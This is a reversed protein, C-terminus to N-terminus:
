WVRVWVNECVCMCVTSLIHQHCGGAEVANGGELKLSHLTQLSWYHGLECVCLCSCLWVWVWASRGKARCLKRHIGFIVSGIAKRKGEPQAHLSSSAAQILISILGRWRGAGVVSWHTAGMIGGTSPLFDCNLKCRWPKPQVVQVCTNGGRYWPTEHSKM